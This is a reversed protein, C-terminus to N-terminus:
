QRFTSEHNLMEAELLISKPFLIHNELHIHQHLDNEFEQLKAYLVRFTNCAYEPPQYDQSLEKIRQMTGGVSEHEREMMEIPHKITGFPSAQLPKHNRKDDVMQRIYPFLINEEKHMHMRLEDAVAHYLGAIEIVEPHSEGHVRAVKASFEDLLTLAVRVYKHHTNIIYDALFDLEWSNYNQSPNTNSQQELEDLAQLVESINIGQRSCTVDLPDKGGCCFDIGFKKFVEAKRYDEAVMEGISPNSSDNTINNMDM